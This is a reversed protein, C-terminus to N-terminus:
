LDGTGAWKISQYPGLLSLGVYMHLNNCMRLILLGYLYLRGKCYNSFTAEHTNIYVETKLTIPVCSNFYFYSWSDVDM